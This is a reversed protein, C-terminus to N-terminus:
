GLKPPRNSAPRSIRTAEIQLTDSYALEGRGAARSIATALTVAAGVPDSARDLGADVSVGVEIARRELVPLVVARIRADAAPSDIARRATRRGISLGLGLGLLLGGVAALITEWADM